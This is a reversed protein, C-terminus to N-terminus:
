VVEASAVTQHAFTTYRVNSGDGVHYHSSSTAKRFQERLWAPQAGGTEDFRRLDM